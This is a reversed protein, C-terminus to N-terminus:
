RKPTIKRNMFHCKTKGVQFLIQNITSSQTRIFTGKYGLFYSCERIVMFILARTQTLEYPKWNTTYNNFVISQQSYEELM